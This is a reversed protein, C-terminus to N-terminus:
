AAPAAPPQDGGAVPEESALGGSVDGVPDGAPPEPAPPMPAPADPAAPPMPDASPAPPEPNASPDPTPNTNPEM